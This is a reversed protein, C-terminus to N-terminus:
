RRTSLGVGAAASCRSRSAEWISFSSFSVDFGMARSVAERDEPNRTLRHITASAFLRAVALLAAVIGGTLAASGKPGLGFMPPQWDIPLCALTLLLLLLLSM